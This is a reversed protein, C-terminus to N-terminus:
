NVTLLKFKSQAIQIQQARNIIRQSRNSIATLWKYNATALQNQHPLKPGGYNDNDITLNVHHKLHREPICVLPLTSQFMRWSESWIGVFPCVKWFEVNSRGSTGSAVRNWRNSIPTSIAELVCFFSWDINVYPFQRGIPSGIAALLILRSLRTRVITDCRATVCFNWFIIGVALLIRTTSTM